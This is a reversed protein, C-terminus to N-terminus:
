QPVILVFLEREDSHQLTFTEAYRRYGDAEVFIKHEGVGMAIEAQGAPDLPPINKPSCYPDASMFSVKANPVTAGDVDLVVLRLRAAAIFDLPIALEIDRDGVSVIRDGALCKGLTSSGRWMSDPPVEITTGGQEATFEHSESGEVRVQADAITHGNLTVFVLMANRAACGKLEKIGPTGPCADRADAIGDGDTDVAKVTGTGFGGGVLVRFNAAGVGPTLGVAVGGLAFGGSGAVYRGTVIGEFPSGMAAETEQLPIVGKMEYNLGLSSTARYGLAAGLIAADGGPLFIRDVVPNFQTGINGTLTWTNMSMTASGLFGGAVKSQGLFAQDSGAPLVLYPTLGIGVGEDGAEQPLILVTGGLRLDGLGAGRPGDPGASGLYLPGSLELRAREHLVWNVSTNLAMLNDVVPFEKGKEDAGMLPEDAYEFVAGASWDMQNMTGPRNLTLPDRVDADMASIQFGHADMGAPEKGGNQAIALSCLWTLALTAVAM